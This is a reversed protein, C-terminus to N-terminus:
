ATIYCVHNNCYAVYEFSGAASYVCFNPQYNRYGYRGADYFGCLDIKINEGELVDIERAGFPNNKREKGAPTKYLNRLWKVGKATQEDSLAVYDIFLPEIDEYECLNHNLRSKLLNLDKESIVGTELIESVRKRTDASKSLKAM